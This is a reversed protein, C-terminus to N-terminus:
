VAGAIARTIATSEAGCSTGGAGCFLDAAKLTM